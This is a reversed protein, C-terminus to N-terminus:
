FPSKVKLQTMIVQGHQLDETSLTRCDAILASAVILSDYISFGHRKAISLALDHHDISLSEVTCHATIAQEFELVEDLSMGFKRTAVSALENLVQVSITPRKKLITEAISAKRDDEALLYLLVNTDVFAKGSM